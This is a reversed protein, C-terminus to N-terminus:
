PLKLRYKHKYKPSFYKTMEIKKKDTVNREDSETM